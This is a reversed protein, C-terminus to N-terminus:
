GSRAAASAASTGTGLATQAFNTTFATSPLPQALAQLTQSVESLSTTVTHANTGAATAAADAVAATQGATGAPSATRPPATFPTLTSAAASSGAYGYMAATDQAWMEGYLAETAAIAPTNQGLLNTAILAALQARNDAVVPPPVTM